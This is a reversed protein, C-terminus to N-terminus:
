LHLLYVPAAAVLLAAVQLAIVGLADRPVKHLWKIVFFAIVPVQAGVLIQWIHAAAGEDTQRATGYILVYGMVVAFATLSMAVPALASPHGILGRVHNETKM